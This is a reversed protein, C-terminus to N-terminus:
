CLEKEWNLRFDPGSCHMETRKRASGTCSSSKKENRWLYWSSVSKPARVHEAALKNTLAAESVRVGGRQPPREYRALNRNEKSKERWAPELHNLKHWQPWHSPWSSWILNWPHCMPLWLCYFTSCAFFATRCLWSPSKRLGADTCKLRQGVGWRTAMAAIVWWDELNGGSSIFIQTIDLM